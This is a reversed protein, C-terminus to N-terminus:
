YYKSEIRNKSNAFVKNFTNSQVSKKSMIRVTYMASNLYDEPVLTFPYVEM